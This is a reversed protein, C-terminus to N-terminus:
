NNDSHTKGSDCHSSRRACIPCRRRGDFAPNRERGDQARRNMERHVAAVSEDSKYFQGRRM